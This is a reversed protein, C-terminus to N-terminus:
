QKGPSKSPAQGKESGIDSGGGKMTGKSGAGSTGGEAHHGETAGAGGMDAQKKMGQPSQSEQFDKMREEYLQEQTGQTGGSHEKTQKQHSTGPQAGATGSLLVFGLCGAILYRVRLSNTM